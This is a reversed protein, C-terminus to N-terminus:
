LKYGGFVAFKYYKWIVDVDKFGINHLWNLQDFLKSPNDEAKHTPIWKNEIEDMSIKLNMFEKWKAIYLKQLHDNSGLTDDANFFAGGENLTDYIKKYVEIKDDDTILHHLALSSLIVDYKESFNVHYFDALVYNIDKHGKLKVKALEIMNEAIDLCTVKANPFKNILSESITGTGCGLDLVKISDDNNFPIANILAKVMDKYYPILKLIIKDFEIAEEEFHSKVNESKNL